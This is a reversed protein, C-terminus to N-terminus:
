LPATASTMTTTPAHTNWRQCRSKESITYHGMLRRGGRERRGPGGSAANEDKVCAFPHAKTRRGQWRRGQSATLMALTVQHLV